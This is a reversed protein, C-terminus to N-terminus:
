QSFARGMHGGISRHRKAPRAASAVAYDEALEDEDFLEILIPTPRILTRSVRERGENFKHYLDQDLLRDAGDAELTRKEGRMGDDSAADAMETDNSDGRPATHQTMEDLLCKPYDWYRCSLANLRSYRMDRDREEWIQEKLLAPIARSLHRVEGTINNEEWYEQLKVHEIPGRIVIPPTSRIQDEHGLRNNMFVHSGRTFSFGNHVVVETPTDSLHLLEFISPYGDTPIGSILYVERDHFPQLSKEISKILGGSGASTVGSELAARALCIVQTNHDHSDRQIQVIPTKRVASGTIPGARNYQPSDIMQQSLDTCISKVDNSSFRPEEMSASIKAWISARDPAALEIYRYDTGASSSSFAPPPAAAGSASPQVPASSGGTHMFVPHGVDESQDKSCKLVTDLVHDTRVSPIWEGILLTLVFVMAEESVVSYKALDALREENFHLGENRMPAVESFFESHIASVMTMVRALKKAMDFKRADITRRAKAPLNKLVQRAVHIANDDSLEGLTGAEIAKNWFAVYWSVLRWQRLCQEVADAKTMDSTAFISDTPDTDKRSTRTIPMVISRSTLPSERAVVNNCNAAQTTMQRQRIMASDRKGNEDTQFVHSTTQQTTIRSKHM